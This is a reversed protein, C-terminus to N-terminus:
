KTVAEILEPAKEMKKCAAERKKKLEAKKTESLDQFGAGAVKVTLTGCSNVSEIVNYATKTQIPKKSYEYYGYAAILIVVIASIIVRLNSNEKKM